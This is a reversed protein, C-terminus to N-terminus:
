TWWNRTGKAITTLSKRLSRARDFWNTNRRKWIKLKFGICRTGNWKIIRGHCCSFFVCKICQKEFRDRKFYREMPEKRKRPSTLIWPFVSPVVGHKLENKGSLSKKIDGKRFHRSCIRTSKTVQLIKRRREKNRTTVEESRWRTRSRFNLSHYKQGMKKEIDRRRANQFM